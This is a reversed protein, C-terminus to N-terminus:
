VDCSVHAHCQMVHVHILMCQDVSLLIASCIMIKSSISGPAWPIYYKKM